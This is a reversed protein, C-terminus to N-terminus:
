RRITLDPRRRVEIVRYLEVGDMVHDQRILRVPQLDAAPRSSPNEGRTSGGPQQGTVRKPDDEREDALASSFAPSPPRMLHETGHENRIITRVVLSPDPM